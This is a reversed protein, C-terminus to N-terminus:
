ASWLPALPTDSRAPISILGFQTMASRTLSLANLWRRESLGAMSPVFGMLCVRLKDPQAPLADLPKDLARAVTRLASQLDQHRRKPLSVDSALRAQLEALTPGQAAISLNRSPTLISM